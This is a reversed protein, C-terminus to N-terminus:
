YTESDEPIGYDKIKSSKTKSNIFETLQDVWKVLIEQNIMKGSIIKQTFITVLTKVLFGRGKLITKNLFIPLFTKALSTIYDSTFSSQNSLGLSKFIYNFPNNFSNKISNVKQDFYLEQEIKDQKLIAIQAKLEDMNTINYGM